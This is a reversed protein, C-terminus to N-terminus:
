KSNIYKGIVMMHGYRDPKENRIITFGHRALDDPLWFSLHRELENGYVATQPVFLGPTAVLLIGGPNLWQKLRELHIAGDQAEFHELVDAFIIFDYKQVPEFDQLLNVFIRDYLDWLPSSYNPFGELGHLITKYPYVGMDVWERVAAGWMGFGIGIDFVSKPKRESLEFAIPPIVTFSGIPM